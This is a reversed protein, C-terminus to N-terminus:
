RPGSGTSDPAGGHSGVGAGSWGASRASRGRVRCVTAAGPMRASHARRRARDPRSGPSIRRAPAAETTRVEGGSRAASTLIVGPETVSFCALVAALHRPRTDSRAGLAGPGSGGPAEDPDAIEIFHLPEDLDARHERWRAADHTLIPCVAADAVAAVHADWPDLGTRAIVAALRVAQEDDRLAATMANKLRELGELLEAAEDSHIDLSAGTVALAPIVLPRGRADLEQVLTMTRTDGRAVEVLVSIDLVWPTPVAQVDESM